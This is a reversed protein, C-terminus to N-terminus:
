WLEAVLGVDVTDISENLWGELAEQAVQQPRIWHVIAVSAFITETGVGLTLAGDLETEVRDLFDQPRVVEDRHDAGM